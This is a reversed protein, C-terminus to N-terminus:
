GDNPTKGLFGLIETNVEITAAVTLITGPM